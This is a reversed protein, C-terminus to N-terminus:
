ERCVARWFIGDLVVAPGTILRADEELLGRCGGGHRRQHLPGVMWRAEVAVLRQIGHCNLKMLCTLTQCFSISRSKSGHSRQPSKFWDVTGLERVLCQAQENHCSSKKGASTNRGPWYSGPTASKNRQSKRKFVQIGNVQTSTMVQSNDTVASTQNTQVITMMHFQTVQANLQTYAYRQWRTATISWLHM